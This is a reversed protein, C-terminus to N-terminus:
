QGVPGRADADGGRPRGAAPREAAVLARDVVARRQGLVAVAVAGVDGRHRGSAGLPIGRARGVAGADGGVGVDVVDLDEVVAAAAAEAVHAHEVHVAVAVQAIHEFADLPHDEVGPFVVDAHEVHAQGRRRGLGPLGVREADRHATGRRRPDGHHHRRAVEALRRETQLDVACDARRAVVGRHDRDPRDVRM